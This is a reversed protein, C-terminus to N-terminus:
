LAHMAQLSRETIDQIEDESFEFNRGLEEIMIQRMIGGLDEGTECWMDLIARRYLFLTDEGSPTKREVGPAIEKGSRYLALLDFPDDLDLETETAEDVLDEVMIKLTECFNLMEDPLNELIGAAMVELDELNPPTTFNMIIHRSM